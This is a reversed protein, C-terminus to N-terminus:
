TTLVKEIELMKEISPIDNYVDTQEYGDSAELNLSTHNLDPHHDSIRKRYVFYADANGIWKMGIYEKFMDCNNEQVSFGLETLQEKSLELPM